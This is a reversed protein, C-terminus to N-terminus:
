VVEEAGDYERIFYRDGKLEEVALDTHIIGVKSIYEEVALVLNPDHRSIDDVYGMYPDYDTNALENYREIVQKPLCYAGYNANFVVKTM